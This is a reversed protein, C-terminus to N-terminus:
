PVSMRIYFSVHLDDHLNNYYVLYFSSLIYEKQHYHLCFSFIISPDQLPLIQSNCILYSTYLFRIRQNRDYTAYHINNQICVYLFYALNLMVNMVFHLHRFLFIAQCMNNVCLLKHNLCPSQNFPVYSLDLYHSLLSM